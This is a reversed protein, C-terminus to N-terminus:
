ERPTTTDFMLVFFKGAISLSLKMHPQKTVLWRDECHCSLQPVTKTLQVGRRVIEIRQLSLHAQGNRLDCPVTGLM